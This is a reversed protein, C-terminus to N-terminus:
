HVLFWSNGKILFCSRHQKTGAPGLFCVFTTMLCAILKQWLQTLTLIYLDILCVPMYVSLCFFDILTHWVATSVLSIVFDKSLLRCYYVANWRNKNVKHSHECSYLKVYCSHLQLLGLTFVSTVKHPRAFKLFRM